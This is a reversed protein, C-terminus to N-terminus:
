QCCVIIAYKRRRASLDLRLAEPMRLAIFNIFRPSPVMKSTNNTEQPSQSSRIDM